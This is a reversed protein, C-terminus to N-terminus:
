IPTGVQGMMDHGLHRRAYGYSRSVGFDDYDSYPFNKAVPLFAKLGYCTEWVWEPAATDSGSLTQIQYEGVMGGLVAGYAELYYDYHPLGDTLTEVTEQGSLIADAIAKMDSSKYRSFDGGNKAALLALLEIWHLETASGHTEVDYQYADEMAECTVNFDVWKIYNKQPEEEYLQNIRPASASVAQATFFWILCATFLFFLEIFIATRLRSAKM